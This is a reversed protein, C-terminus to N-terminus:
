PREDNDDQSQQGPDPAIEPLVHVPDPRDLSVGARVDYPEVSAREM